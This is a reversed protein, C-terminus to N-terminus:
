WPINPRWRLELGNWPETWGGEWYQNKPFLIHATYNEVSEEPLAEELSWGAAALCDQTYRLAERPNERQNDVMDRKKFIPSSNSVSSSASGEGKRQVRNKDQTAKSALNPTTTKSVCLNKRESVCNGCMTEAPVVPIFDYV